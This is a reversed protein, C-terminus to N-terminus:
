KVNFTTVIWDQVDFIWGTIGPFIAKTFGYYADFVLIIGLIVFLTGALLNTSHIYYPKKGLKVEFLKGRMFRWVKGDHPLHALYASFLLLPLVLGMAHIFLLLGGTIATGTNAALVLMFGVIPGICGSWMLGFVGGFIFSGLPTRKFTIKKKTANIGKGIISLAGFIILFIGSVVMVERKYLLTFRGLSGALVGLLTFTTALGLAFLFTNRKSNEPTSTGAYAFYAPLLPLTCPALFSLVGALFAAIVYLALEIM